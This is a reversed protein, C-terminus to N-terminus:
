LSGSTMNRSIHRLEELNELQNTFTLREQKLMDLISVYKKRITDGEMLKLNTKHIENELFRILAFVAKFSVTVRYILGPKKKLPSSNIEFNLSSHM